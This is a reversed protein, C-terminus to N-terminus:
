CCILKQDRCVGRVKAWPMREAEFVRRGPRHSTDLTLEDGRHQVSMKEEQLIVTMTNKCIKRGSSKVM